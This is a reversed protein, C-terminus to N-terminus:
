KKLNKGCQLMSPKDKESIKIYWIYSEFLSVFVLFHSFYYELLKAEGKILFFEAIQMLTASNFGKEKRKTPLFTYKDFLNHFM